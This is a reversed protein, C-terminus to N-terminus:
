GRARRGAFHEDVASRVAAELTMSAPKYHARYRVVVMWEHCASCRNVFLDEPDAEGLDVYQRLWRGECGATPGVPAEPPPADLLAALEADWDIPDPTTTMDDSQCVDRTADLSNM